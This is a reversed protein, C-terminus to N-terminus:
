GNALSFCILSATLVSVSRVMCTFFNLLYSNRALVICLSNTRRRIPFRPSYYCVYSDNSDNCHLQFFLSSSLFLCLVFTFSLFYSARGLSWVKGNCRNYFHSLILYSGFSWYSFHEHTIILMMLLLFVYTQTDDKQLCICFTTRLCVFACVCVRACARTRTNTSFMAILDEYFSYKKIEENYWNYYQKM